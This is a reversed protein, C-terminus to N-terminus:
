MENVVANIFGDIFGYEQLTPTQNDSLRKAELRAADIGFQAIMQQGKDYGLIRHSKITDQADTM